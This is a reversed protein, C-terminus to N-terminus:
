ASAETDLQDDVMNRVEDPTYEGEKPQDPLGDLVTCLNDCTQSGSPDTEYVDILDYAEQKTM